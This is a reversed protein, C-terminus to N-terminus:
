EPTRRKGLAPRRRRIWPAFAVALVGFSAYTAPEPVAVIKLVSGTDGPGVSESLLVYLEGDVDEGFGKLFPGGLGRDDLGIMFERVEFVGPSSEVLYFLRGGDGTVSPFQSFDITKSLDGFVYTGALSAIAGGRYVFGGIVAVGDADSHFYEAIPDVYGTQPLNADFPLTGEKAKWGYNGGNVIIDVEESEGQGVDGLYLENTGGRDFSFSYPNRLGYAFIEHRATTSSAFPNDAPISYELGTDQADVDIRLVNGLLNTTDQANGTVATHNTGEDNAAGGDGTSIYLYGDPGFQLHGGNHNGQPQDFTLVERESLLNGVNPNASVTFESVVTRHNWGVTTTPASYYVYFKGNQAYNPHFAMGLLGREDYGPTLAVMKSSIDLFPTPLLSGNEIVRIQGIQDAVFLRSDGAHTAYIPSVLGTAITQLEIAKNGKPIPAAEGPLHLAFLLFTLTLLASLLFGGSHRSAWGGSTSYPNRRRM